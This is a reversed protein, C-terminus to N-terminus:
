SVHGDCEPCLVSEKEPLFDNLPLPALAVDFNGQLRRPRFHGETQSWPVMRSNLSFESHQGEMLFACNGYFVRVNKYIIKFSNVECIRQPGNM